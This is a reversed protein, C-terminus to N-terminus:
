QTKLQPYLKQAILLDSAMGRDLLELLLCNLTIPKGKSIEMVRQHEDKNLSDTNLPTREMETNQNIQM